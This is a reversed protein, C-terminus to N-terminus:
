LKLGIGLLCNFGREIGMLAFQGVTTLIGQPDHQFCGVIFLRNEM